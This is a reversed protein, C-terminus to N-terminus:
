GFTIYMSEPTVGSDIYMVKPHSPEVALSNQASSGIACASLAHAAPAIVAGSLVSLLSLILTTTTIKATFKRWQIKLSDLMQAM